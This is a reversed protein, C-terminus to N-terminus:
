YAQEGTEYKLESRHKIKKAPNGAWVENAPVNKTVVSGAGIIAGKGITIGPLITANAGIIANEEVVVGALKNKTLKSTPFKANTLTVNPGIWCGKKLVSREPIFAKSHIRVNDEIVVEHEIVTYTGISVNNGIVVNERIFVGHGTELNNGIKAGAYIVTYPRLVANDGITTQLEGEEKGRLPHGIIVGTGISCNKGLFVNKM